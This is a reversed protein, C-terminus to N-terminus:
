SKGFKLLQPHAEQKISALSLPLGWRETKSVLLNSDDGIGELWENLQCKVSNAVIRHDQAKNRFIRRNRELLVQWSTFKPLASWASRIKKNKPQIGLYRAMWSAFLEQVSTPFNLDFNWSDLLEQWVSITYNCEIMIHLATESNAKCLICRSPGNFGRKQLRDETLIKQHCLIWCFHDIKPISPFNWIGAWPAPNPPVHPRELFKSYGQKVTYASRSKGWGRADKRNAHIPALVHLHAKFATWENQLESPM